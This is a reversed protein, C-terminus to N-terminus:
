SSRAALWLYRTLFCRGAVSGESKEKSYFNLANKKVKEEDQPAFPKRFIVGREKVGGRAGEGGGVPDLM